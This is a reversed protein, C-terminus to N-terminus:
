KSVLFITLFYSLDVIITGFKDKAENGGTAVSVWWSASTLTLTQRDMLNDVEGMEVFGRAAAGLDCGMFVHVKGTLM